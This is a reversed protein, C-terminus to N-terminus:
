LNQCLCEICIMMMAHDNGDDIGGDDSSVMVRQGNAVLAFPQGARVGDPVTVEFMQHNPAAAPPREQQSPLQFTVRQGATIITIISVLLSSLYIPTPHEILM